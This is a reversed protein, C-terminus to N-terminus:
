QGDEEDNSASVDPAGQRSAMLEKYGPPAYKWEDDIESSSSISPMYVSEAVAAPKLVSMDKSKDILEYAKQWDEDPQEAPPVYKAFKVLDARQLFSNLERQFERDFDISEFYEDIESTTLDISEFEFKKGLYRRIIETLEFYFQKLEGKSILDNNKLMALDAFAIEWSPRPDFFEVEKRANRRAWWWIFIAFILLGAGAITLKFWLPWDGEIDAQKKLTLIVLSDKPTGEALVSKITIQIPDSAIVQKTSDPTMYEIPLPPIIYDGTTFTRIDFWLQQRRRGGDLKEEDRVKYDQVDFQGLNMGVAPPTLDLTSDYTITVTYEIPDGIYATQKDVSATIEINEAAVASVLICLILILQLGVRHVM